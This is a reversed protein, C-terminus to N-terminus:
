RPAVKWDLIFKRLEATVLQYPDGHVRAFYGFAEATGMIGAAAATDMVLQWMAYVVATPFQKRIRDQVSFDLDDFSGGAALKRALTYAVDAHLQTYSGDPGRVRDLPPLSLTNRVRNGLEGSTVVPPPAAEAGVALQRQHATMTPWTRVGAKVQEETLGQPEVHLSDWGVKWDEDWRHGRALEVARETLAAPLDFLAGTTLGNELAAALLKLLYPKGPALPADDDYIHVALAHREGNPGTTSHLSWRVKSLKAAVLAAQEKPDRWGDQLRPREGWSELLRVTGLAADAFAPYLEALIAKNRAHRQAETM